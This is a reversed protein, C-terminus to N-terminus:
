AGLGENTAWSNLGNLRANKGQHSGDLSTSESIMNDPITGNEMGLPEFCATM